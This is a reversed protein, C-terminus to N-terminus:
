LRKVADQKIWGQNGNPLEFELWGQFDDLIKIKTGEHLVFADNSRANPESKIEVEESFVIAFNRSEELNQRSYGMFVAVIALVLFFMSPIFFARKKGSGHSFYYGLFLLVFFLMLVIATWAWGSAGFVSIVSHVWKSFGTKPDEHIADLTMQRAFVINNKVDEDNPALQLAKEYHFISPGVQNLKYYANALNYHVAVDTKGNELIKQYKEVALEYNGEAYAANAERFLDNGQAFAGFGLFLFIYFLKKM